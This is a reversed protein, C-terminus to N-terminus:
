SLFCVEVEQAQAVSADAAVTIKTLKGRLVKAQERLNQNEKAVEASKEPSLAPASQGQQNAGVSTISSSHPFNPPFSM